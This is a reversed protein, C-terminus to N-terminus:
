GWFSMLKQTTLETATAAPLNGRSAAHGAGDLGGRPTCISPQAPGRGKPAQPNRRSQVMGEVQAGVIDGTERRLHLAQNPCPRGEGRPAGPLRQHAFGPMEWLASCEGM